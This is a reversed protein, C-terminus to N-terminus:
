WTIEVAQGGKLSRRVAEAVRYAALLGELPRLRAAPDKEAALRIFEELIVARLNPPAPHHEVGAGYFAVTGRAADARFAGTEGVVEFVAEAQLPLDAPLVRGFELTLVGEDELRAVVSVLRGSQEEAYLRRPRGFTSVVYAFLELGPCIPLDGGSDAGAKVWFTGSAGLVRGAQGARVLEAARVLAPEFLRPMAVLGARGGERTRLYLIEFTQIFPAFPGPALWHKRAQIAREVWRRRRDPASGVLVAEAVPHHLVYDPGAVPRGSPPREPAPEAGFREAVRGVLEPDPDWVPGLRCAPHAAVTEIWGFIEPDQLGLIGFTLTRAM